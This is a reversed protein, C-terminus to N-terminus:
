RLDIRGGQLHWRTETCAEALSQDHTVLLLAGPYARLAAELREISPLDLHNTPEDLVVWWPMTALGRALLLKRVEGPSPSPSALLREPETGLAAVLSLVRGREDKPLGRVEELAQAGAGADLEQPLWFVREPPLGAVELLRAVLTSKGAGNEGTVAIRDTRHLAVRADEVLVREGRVLPGGPLAALLPRPCPEFRVFVSRGLEAKEPGGVVAAEAREVLSQTAAVRRGLSKEANEVRGRALLGRADSDYKSRMRHGASKKAATAAQQRRAEVLQAARRRVEARGQAHAERRAAEEREWEARAQSYSGPSIAAHGNELRLTRATLADLLARDHSVLVGVGRFGRLADILFRRGEADLHQSPEDLLLVAPEAHLAAGIQWRKREGPSLTRWRELMPPELGLRGRLRYAEGDEAQAFGAIAQTVADVRQPCLAAAAGAPERSLRGSTPSLEGLFLRLLTSKGAGNEGVLGTWGSEHHFTADSLLPLADSFAFSAGTARLSPM